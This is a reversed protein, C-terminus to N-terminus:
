AVHRDVEALRALTAGLDPSQPAVRRRACARELGAIPERDLGVQVLERGVFQHRRQVVQALERHSWLRPDKIVCECGDAFQLPAIWV